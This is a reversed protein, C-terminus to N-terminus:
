LADLVPNPAPNVHLLNIAAPPLLTAIHLNNKLALDNLQRYATETRLVRDISTSKTRLTLFRRM